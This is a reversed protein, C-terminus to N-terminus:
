TTIKELQCWRAIFIALVSAVKLSSEISVSEDIAHINTAEPGYCTAPIKGYIEFTRVDTTAASAFLEVEKGLVDHHASALTQIPQSTTDVVCGPSQFGAYSIKYDVGELRLDTKVSRTLHNEIAARVSDPEEDPFFGCRIDMRCKTPLSSAWEGGQIKGLNFKIPNKTKAFAPHRRAPDNWDTTLTKLHQWIQFASEIANIGSTDNLVHAPKGTVEIQLWMVGVQASMITESFPEPIIAADATYGRHLCALAGNGTCEEEVVSQLIVDAAPVYGLKKIARFAMLYAAIGAKMDGSGRGYIRGNRVVPSFPPSSWLEEAGVPVVDIHGNLILSKGTQKKSRFKGVVNEHNKWEGVPPSYGKVKSLTDNDIEFRDVELDLQLFQDQMFDQGSKEYGLLSPHSVLNSILDIIESESERIASVIEQELLNIQSM